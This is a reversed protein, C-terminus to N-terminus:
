TPPSPVPLDLERASLFVLRDLPTGPAPVNCYTDWLPQTSKAVVRWECLETACDLYSGWGGGTVPSINIGFPLVKEVGGILRCVYHHIFHNGM